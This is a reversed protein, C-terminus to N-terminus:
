KIANTVEQDVKDYINGTNSGVSTAGAVIAVSVLAAIMAYEFAVAGDISKIYKMIM